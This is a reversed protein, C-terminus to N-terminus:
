NETAKTSLREYDIRENEGKKIELKECNVHYFQDMSESLLSFYGHQYQLYNLQNQVKQISIHLFM